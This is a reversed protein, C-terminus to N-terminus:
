EGSREDDQYDRYAPDEESDLYPVADGEKRELPEPQFGGTMIVKPIGAIDYADLPTRQTIYTGLAGYSGILIAFVLLSRFIDIGSALLLLVYFAIATVTFGVVGHSRAAFAVVNGVAACALAATVTNHEPDAGLLRYGVWILAAHALAAAVYFTEPTWTILADGSEAILSLGFAPVAAELLM